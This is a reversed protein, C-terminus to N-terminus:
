RSDAKKMDSFMDSLNVAMNMDLDTEKKRIIINNDKDFDGFILTDTETDICIHSVCIDWICVPYTSWVIYKSCPNGHKKVYDKIDSITTDLLKIKQKKQM